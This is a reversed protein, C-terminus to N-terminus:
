TPVAYRELLFTILNAFALIAGAAGVGLPFLFLCYDKRHEKNTLFNGVAEVLEDYIGLLVLFTGASVGPIVNVIGIVMGKLILYIFKM